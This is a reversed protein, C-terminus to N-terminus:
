IRNAAPPAAHFIFRSSARVPDHLQLIGVIAVKLNEIM